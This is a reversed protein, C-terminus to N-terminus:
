NRTYTVDTTSHTVGENHIGADTANVPITMDSHTSQVLGDRARLKWVDRDTAMRGGFRGRIDAHVEIGDASAAVITLEAHTDGEDANIKEGIQIPREPLPKLTDAGGFDFPDELVHKREPGPPVTEGGPDRTVVYGETRIQVRYAKGLSPGPKSSHKSTLVDDTEIRDELYEIRGDTVNGNVVADARHRVREHRTHIDHTHKVEGTSTKTWTVDLDNKEIRETTWEVGVAPSTRPLTVAQQKPAAPKQSAPAPPAPKPAAGGCAAVVVLAAARM